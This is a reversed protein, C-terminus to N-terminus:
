YGMHEWRMEEAIYVLFIYLNGVSERDKAEEEEYKAKAKKLVDSTFEVRGIVEPQQIWAGHEKLFIRNRYIDCPYSIDNLQKFMDEPLTITGEAFNEFTQIIAEVANQFEPLQMVRQDKLTGFSIILETFLKRLDEHVDRNNGKEEVEETRSM